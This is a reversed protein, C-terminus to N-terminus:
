KEGGVVEWGEAFPPLKIGRDSLQKDSQTTDIRQHGGSAGVIGRQIGAKNRM